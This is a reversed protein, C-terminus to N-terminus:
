GAEVVRRESRVGADSAQAARMNAGPVYVIGDIPTRSTEAAQAIAEVWLRLVCDAYRQSMYQRSCNKLEALFSLSLGWAVRKVIWRDDADLVRFWDFPRTSLNGEFDSVDRSTPEFRSIISNLHAREDESDYRRWEEWREPPIDPWATKFGLRYRRDLDPYVRLTNLARQMRTEVRECTVDNAVMWSQSPLTIIRKGSKPRARLVAKRQRELKRTEFTTSM